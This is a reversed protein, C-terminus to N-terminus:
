ARKRESVDRVISFVQKQDLDSTLILVAHIEVDFESGNKRRLTSEFNNPVGPTVSQARRTLMEVTFNPDITPVSMGIVEERTYGLNEWARRNEDLIRGQDDHIFIADGAQDILQWFKSESRELDDLAKSHEDGLRTRERLMRGLFIVALLALVSVALGPIEAAGGTGDFTLPPELKALSIAQRAAMLALTIALFTMRWDRLRIQFSVALLFALIQLIISIIMILAM